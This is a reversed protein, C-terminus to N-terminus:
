ASAAGIQHLSLEMMGGETLREIDAIEAPSGDDTWYSEVVQGSEVCEFKHLVGPRVTCSDGAYLKWTQTVHDHNGGSYLRVRIMGSVVFFHNFRCAHRHISSYGGANVSLLSVQVPGEFIHRVRGWVKEEQM